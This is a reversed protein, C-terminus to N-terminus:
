ERRPPLQAADVRTRFKQGRNKDFLIGERTLLKGKHHFLITCNGKEPHGRRANGQGTEGGERGGREDVGVTKTAEARDANRTGVLRLPIGIKFM